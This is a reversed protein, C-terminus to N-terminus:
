WPGTGQKDVRLPRTLRDSLEELYGLREEPAEGEGIPFLCYASKEGYYAGANLVHPVDPNKDGWPYVLSRSWYRFEWGYDAFVTIPSAVVAPAGGRSGAFLDLRIGAMGFGAAEDALCVYPADAEVIGLMGRSLGPELTAAKYRIEGNKWKWGVHDIETEPHVVVEENRLATAVIDEVIDMTSEVLVYPTERFFHYTVATDIEPVWPLPGWRRLVVCVPGEKLSVNPPPNWDSVHSWRRGKPWVDPNYHLPYKENFLGTKDTRSFRKTFFGDIQGSEPHLSIRYFDNEIWRVGEIESVKLETPYVPKAAEPNGYFFAYFAKGNANVEALFAAECTSYIKEKEPEDAKTNVFLVQSPVEVASGTQPDIRAIRLEREWSGVKDAEESIFQIQPEKRRSIGFDEALVLVRHSKWGPYPWGGSAPAEAQITLAETAGEPGVALTLDIQHTEGNEWPGRVCLEVRKGAPIKENVSGGEHRLFERQWMAGDIFPVFVEEEGDFRVSSLTYTADSASLSVKAHYFRVSDGPWHFTIQEIKPNAQAMAALTILAALGIRPAYEPLRM